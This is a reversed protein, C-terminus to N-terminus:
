NLVLFDARWSTSLNECFDLFEPAGLPTVVLVVGSADYTNYVREFDSVIAYFNLLAASEGM